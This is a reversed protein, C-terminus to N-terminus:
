RAEPLVRYQADSLGTQDDLARVELQYDYLRLMAKKAQQVDLETLALLKQAVEVDTRAINASVPFCLLSLLFVFSIRM